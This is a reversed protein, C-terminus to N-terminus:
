SKLYVGHIVVRNCGHTNGSEFDRFITSEGEPIKESPNRFLIKKPNGADVDALKTYLDRDHSQRRIDTSAAYLFNDLFSALKRSKGKHAHYDNFFSMGYNDKAIFKSAEICICVKYNPSFGADFLSKYLLNAERLVLKIKRLTTKPHRHSMEYFFDSLLLVSNDDLLVDAIVKRVFKSYDYYTPDFFSVVDLCKLYSEENDNYSSKSVPIIVTIKKSIDNCFTRIFQKLTEIFFIGEQGSRDVDEAVIILHKQPFKNFVEKLIEQIEFVRTAPSTNFFHNINKIASLGPIPIDGITNVLAKKDDNQKGDIKNITEKFSRENFQRALDLVFTEWLEKRGPVKWAEFELWREDEGKDTRSLEVQRILTSKGKGYDAVIGIMSANDLRDIKKSLSSVEEELSFYDEDSVMEDLLKPDAIFSNMSKNVMMMSINIVSGCHLSSEFIFTAGKISRAQLAFLV